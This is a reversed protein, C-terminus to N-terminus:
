ESDKNLASQLAKELVEIKAELVGIKSSECEAAVSDKELKRRYEKLKNMSIFYFSGMWAAGATLGAILTALIIYVLNVSYTTSNWLKFDIAGINYSALFAVIAIIIISILKLVIKM